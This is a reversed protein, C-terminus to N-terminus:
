EEYNSIMVDPAKFLRDKLPFPIYLNKIKRYNKKHYNVYSDGYLNRIKLNGTDQSLSLSNLRRKYNYLVEDLFYIKKNLMIKVRRQFETDAGFRVSDYYGVIEIIQKRYFMCIEGYIKRSDIIYKYQIIDCTKNEELIRVCKELTKNDLEDDSDLRCIYKGRAINLAINLCVYVGYNKKNQQIVFKNKFNQDKKIFDDVFNKVNLFSNDTSADDILIIEWNDYTQNIISNIADLIYSETNYFPILVSVLTSM